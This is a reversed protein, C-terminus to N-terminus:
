KEEEKIMKSYCYECLKFTTDPEEPAAYQILLNPKGCGECKGFIRKKLYKDIYQRKGRNLITTFNTM